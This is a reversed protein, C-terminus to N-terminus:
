GTKAFNTWYTMITKAFPWLQQVRAATLNFAEKMSDPLGFVFPLEDGHAAGELWDPREVYPYQYGFVYVYTAKPANREAGLDDCESPEPSAIGCSGLSSSVRAHNDATILAPMIFEYDSTVDLVEQLARKRETAKVHDAYVLKLIDEAAPSSIGFRDKIVQPLYTERVVDSTLNDDKFTLGTRFEFFAQVTAKAIVEGDDENAGILLDVDRFLDLVGSSDPGVPMTLIDAPSATLFEGDVTPIWVGRFLTEALSGVSSNTVIDAFPKSRLCDVVSQSRATGSGVVHCGLRGALWEAYARGSGPQFAWPCLPSGSEAVARHILGKNGPYLLQYIVSAAGASEGFVTVLDPDGGFAAINDHVWRLAAHQDWLGMNGPAVSDETSLFGLPGLRYNVTVVVVGGLGALRRGDYIRTHGILFAAGGGYFWVMVPLKSEGSGSGQSASGSGQAGSESAQHASKSDQPVYVNLKLCDESMDSPGAVWDKLMDPNQACAVSEKDALLYEQPVPKAVPKQFRLEGVPSQAYPIGRFSTVIADSSDPLSITERIGGIKGAPATVNIVDLTAQPSQRNRPKVDRIRGRGCLASM